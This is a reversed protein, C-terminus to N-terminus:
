GREQWRLLLGEFRDLVKDWTYNSLVYRKGNDGMRQALDPHTRIWELAGAFEEYSRFWLGGKSRVVHGRTVACDQHVLVPRGALWAEMITLSFSEHLSPQCLALAEKYLAAKEGESVFGLYVFAPDKPPVMPGAGIVVLRLDGNEEFYHHMYEYLLSLNKGEELRGAYLLFPVPIGTRMTVSQGLGLALGGGLIAHRALHLKLRLLALDSEELSYFM